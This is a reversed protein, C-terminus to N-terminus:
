APAGVEIAAQIMKKGDKLRPVSAYYKGDLEVHWSATQTNCGFGYSMTRIVAWKGFTYATKANQM